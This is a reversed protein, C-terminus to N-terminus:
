VDIGVGVGSYLIQAYRHDPMGADGANKSGLKVEPLSGSERRKSRHVKLSKRLLPARLPPGFLGYSPM